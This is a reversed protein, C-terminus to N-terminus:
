DERTFSAYMMERGFLSTLHTMGAIDEPNLASQNLLAQTENIAKATTPSVDQILPTLAGLASQVTGIDANDFEYTM